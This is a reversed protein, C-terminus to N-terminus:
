DVWDVVSDTLDRMGPRSAPLEAGGWARARPAREPVATAEDFWSFEACAFGPDGWSDMENQRVLRLCHRLLAMLVEEAGGVDAPSFGDGGQMRCDAERKVSVGISDETM